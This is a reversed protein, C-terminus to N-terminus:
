FMIFDKLLKSRVPYRKTIFEIDKVIDETKKETFLLKDFYFDSDLKHRSCRMKILEIAAGVSNKKSINLAVSLLLSNYIVNRNDEEKVILNMERLVYNKIWNLTEESNDCKIYIIKLVDEIKIEM